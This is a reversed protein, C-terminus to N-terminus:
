RLRLSKESSAFRYLAFNEPHLSSRSWVDLESPLISCNHAASKEVDLKFESWFDPGGTHWRGFVV